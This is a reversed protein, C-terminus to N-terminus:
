VQAHIQFLKKQPTKLIKSLKRREEITATLKGNLIKSFRTNEIDALWAIIFLRDGKAICAQYLEVNRKAM